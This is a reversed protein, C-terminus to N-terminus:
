VSRIEEVYGYVVVAQDAVENFCNVPQSNNLILGPILLVPGSNPMLGTTQWSGLAGSADFGGFFWNLETLRNSSPTSTYSIEQVNAWLWIKDFNTAGSVATHILTPSAGSTSTIQIPRGNTSGSFCNRTVTQAM